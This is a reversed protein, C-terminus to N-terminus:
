EKESNKEERLGERHPGQVVSLVTQVSRPYELNKKKKRTKWGLRQQIEKPQLHEMFRTRPAAHACRPTQNEDVPTASTKGTLQAEPFYVWRFGCAPRRKAVAVAVDSEKPCCVARRM